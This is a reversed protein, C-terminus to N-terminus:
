SKRGNSRRWETIFDTFQGSLSTLGMKIEGTDEKLAIHKEELRTAREQLSSIAGRSVGDKRQHAICDNEMHYELKLVRPRLGFFILYLVFFLGVGAAYAVAEHPFKFVTEEM